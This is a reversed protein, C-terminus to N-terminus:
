KEEPLETFKGKVQKKIKFNKLNQDTELGYGTTVFNNPKTIKVFDDTVILESQPDWRLSATELKIGQDTIVVVNGLAELKQRKEMIIASDSTLYSTHFGKKDFFDARVNKANTLDKAAYKAIYGAKIETSKVGETTFIMTANEIEQDPLEFLKTSSKPKEAKECALQFVWVGCLLLILIRISKAV